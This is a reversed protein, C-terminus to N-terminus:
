CGHIFLLTNALISFLGDNLCILYQHHLFLSVETRNFKELAAAVMSSVRDHQSWFRQAQGSWRFFVSRGVEEDPEPERQRHSTGDSSSSCRSVQVCLSDFQEKSIPRGEHLRLAETAARLKKVSDPSGLLETHMSLLDSQEKSFLHHYDEPCFGDSATMSRTIEREPFEPPICAHFAAIAAAAYAEQVTAAPTGVETIQAAGSGSGVQPCDSWDLKEDGCGRTPTPTHDFLHPDAARLSGGAALLCQLALDQTLDPYRTCLFSVLGYMSRAAVRWLSSTSIMAVEFAKSTPFTAEHWVTNVVINAVSHLPGYCYGGQLMSRHLRQALEDKPLSGLAKLYFGHITALLMRKMAGRVPPLGRGVPVAAARRTALRRRALEWPQQLELDDPQPTQVLLRAVARNM